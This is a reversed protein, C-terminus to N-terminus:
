SWTISGAEKWSSTPFLTIDVLGHFGIQFLCFIEFEDGYSLQCRLRSVFDEMIIYLNTPRSQFAEFWDIMAYYLNEIELRIIGLRHGSSFYNDPCLKRILYGFHSLSISCVLWQLFLSTSEFKNTARQSSTCINIM